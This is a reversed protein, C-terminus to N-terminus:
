VAVYFEFNSIFYMTNKRCGHPFDFSHDLQGQQFLLLVVTNKFMFVIILHLHLTGPLFHATM